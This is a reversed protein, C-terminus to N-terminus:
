RYEVTRTECLTDKIGAKEFANRREACSPCKGCPISNGRYCTWTNSYDVGLEAGLRIVEAKSMEVFPAHIRVRFKRNLDLVSNIRRVFDPTCDWYGYEDHAQAGYFVHDIGRAEAYASALSLFVMNRSPVYTPPQRRQEADLDSLDPIGGGTDLLATAGTVLDRLATVDMIQHKIEDLLRAQLAASELERKHAQGYDFSLAHVLSTKLKKRVYHLLTVSDAGGSLLVVAKEIRCTM